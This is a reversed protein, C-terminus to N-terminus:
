RVLQLWHGDADAANEAVTAGHPAVLLGDLKGAALLSNLLQQTLQSWCEATITGYPMARAAFIGVPLFDSNETLAQLFGGVEHPAGHFAKLVDDGTALLNSKFHELTTPQNLFTNSEHLLAIIGVRKM